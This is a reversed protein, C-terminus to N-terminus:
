NLSVQPQYKAQTRLAGFCIPILRKMVTDLAQTQTKDAILFRRKHKRIDLNHISASITALFLKARVRSLGNKSMTTSGKLKVSENLQHPIPRMRSM